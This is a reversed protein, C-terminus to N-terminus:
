LNHLKRIASEATELDIIGEAYLHMIEIAAESPMGADVSSVNIAFEVLDEKRKM